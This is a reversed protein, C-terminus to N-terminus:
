PFEDSVLEKEEFMIGVRYQSNIKKIKEELSKLMYFEVSSESDVHESIYVTRVEKDFHLYNFEVNYSMFCDISEEEVANKILNLEFKKSSTKGM